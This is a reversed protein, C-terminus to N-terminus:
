RASPPTCHAVGRTKARRERADAEEPRRMRAGLMEPPLAESRDRENRQGDCQDDDHHREDSAIVGRRHLDKAGRRDRDRHQEEDAGADIVHPEAHLHDDLIVHMGLDRFDHQQHRVREEGDGDRQRADEGDSATEVSFGAMALGSRYVTAVVANDEVLLVRPMPRRDNNSARHRDLHPRCPGAVCGFRRGDYREGALRGVHEGIPGM